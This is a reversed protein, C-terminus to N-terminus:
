AKAVTVDSGGRAGLLQAGSGQNVAVEVFGASSITVLLNGKAEFGYSPQFTAVVGQSGVQIVLQEGYKAWGELTESPINTILNGFRDVYIVKGRLEWPTAEARGFDLDVHDEITPGLESAKVGLSLYAAVPAMVDRGHFTPHVGSRIYRPNRIERVTGSGLAKAAPMLLGNDPGVLIGGECEVVLDRRDTGVGPDVVAVHIAPPFYRVADFLVFAGERVNQPGIGHHIDVITAQPNIGLIIGKMAALYKGLGFDTTLTIIGMRDM